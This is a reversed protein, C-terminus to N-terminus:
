VLPYFYAQLLFLAILAYIAAGVDDLIVGIGGQINDDLWRVPQPKLIDFLRFLLFCALYSYWNHEAVSAVIFIGIAEDVVIKQNDHTNTVRCYYHAATTGIIFVLAILGIAVFIDLQWLFWAFPLAALSGWTGPMKPLLGSYFFTAIFEASRWAWGQNRKLPENTIEM